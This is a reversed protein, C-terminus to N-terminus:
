KVKKSYHKVSMLEYRMADLNPSVTVQEKTYGVPKISGGAAKTINPNTLDYTGENGIASKIQTPEFAVWAYPSENKTLAGHEYKIGDYGQSKLWNTKELDSKGPLQWYYPGGEVEIFPNKIAAHVPMVNAGEGAQRAYVNAVGPSEALHFGAGYGVRKLKSKDFEEINKGTGHYLQKKIASGELMKALNAEREAAPLITRMAVSMPANAAGVFGINGPM